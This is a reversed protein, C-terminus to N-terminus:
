GIIFISNSAALTKSIELLTLNTLPLIHILASDACKNLWLSDFTPAASVLLFSLITVFYVEIVYDLLIAKSNEALYIFINKKQSFQPM